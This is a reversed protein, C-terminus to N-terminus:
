VNKDGVYYQYVYDEHLEDLYENNLRDIEARILKCITKKIKVCDLFDIIDADKETDLKINYQKIMKM